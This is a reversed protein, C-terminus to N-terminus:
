IKESLLNWDTISSLTVLKTGDLLQKMQNYVIWFAQFEHWLPQFTETEVM